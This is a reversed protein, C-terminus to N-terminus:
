YFVEIEHGAIHKLSELLAKNITIKKAPKSKAISADMEEVNSDKHDFIKGDENYQAKKIEKDKAKVDLTIFVDKELFLAEGVLEGHKFTIKAREFELSKKRQLQEVMLRVYTRAERKVKEAEERSLKKAEYDLKAKKIEKFIELLRPNLSNKSVYEKLMKELNADNFSVNSALLVDKTVSICSAYVDKIGEGFRKREIQEFLKNIRKIFLNADALYSDLEKGTIEKIKQHDVDKYLRVTDELVKAYKIEILKEKEVFVEQFLKITEKPTPPSLGYLMLAAQSPNLVAYYVDEAAIGLLKKKARDILKEGMDMNLEISERSPKIRGMNLLIKWPMFVGRDFLPVGDRLFTFIVPNADKVSEWFDTLIYVQIHFSKKVMAMDAADYSMTIIMSRLREKLEFRSMRKVDTDDVIIYVDIDNSKEGRFLSGAAVYSVIYKEFKEIVMGKHVESVRIAAIIDTPDYVPTSLAILNLIEYKGDFCSERLEFLTMSQIKIKKDVEEAIKDIKEFINDFKEKHQERKFNIDDILVLVNIKDKDEEAEKQLTPNEQQEQPNKRPPPLISVGVIIKDYSKLLREKLHEIKDKIQKIKEKVEQPIKMHDIDLSTKDKGAMNLSFGKIQM